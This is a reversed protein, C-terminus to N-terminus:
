QWGGDNQPPPNNNDVANGIAGGAAAGLLGGVVANRGRHHGSNYGIVTGALGGLLAGTQTNNNPAVESGTCGNLLMLSTLSISLLQLTKKKM